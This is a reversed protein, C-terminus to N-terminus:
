PQTEPKMLKEPNRRLETERKFTHQKVQQRSQDNKKGPPTEGSTNKGERPHPRQSYDM